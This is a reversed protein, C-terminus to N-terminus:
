RGDRKEFAAVRGDLGADAALERAERRAERAPEDDGNRERAEALDALADVARGVADGEEFLDVATEFRDRAAAPDDRELALEGLASAALGEHYADGTGRALELAEVLREEASGRDGRHLAVRGLLVLCAAKERPRGVDRYRELAERAREGAEDLDGRDLALRGLDLHRTAEGVPDDIERLVALSERFHDAAVDLDGRQRAARGLVTLGDAEGRRDGVTRYRELGPRAYEEAAAPRGRKAEVIGLNTTARAVGHRDGVARYLQLSERYYDAAAGLDGSTEAVVALNNLCDAEDRRTGVDRYITLAERYQREAADSAGVVDHVNGLNHRTTAVGFRDGLERFTSLAERYREEAAEYDGRLWAVNGLRKRGEAANRRDGQERYRRLSERVHEEAADYDGRRHAVTGLELHARAALEGARDAGLGAARDGTEGTRELLAEFEASARDLYGGHLYMTGRRRIAEIRREVPQADPVEVTPADTTGFLPALGPNERGMAFIREVVEETWETPAEAIRDLVPDEGDVARSAASRRDPETALALLAGVCRGFRQAAERQGAASLLESLFLTSWSEHVTRPSGAGDFLVRGTLIERAERVADADDPAVAHLYAPRVALGAANLLNALVGVDLAVEGAAELERHLRRVDGALTTPGPADDAALPAARLSLRHSLLQLEAPAAGEDDADRVEALLEAPEPEVEHGTAVEFREVFREVEREDLPPIPVPRFAEARAPGEGGDFPEGASDAWEGEQADVLVAADGDNLEAAARFVASAGPRVADEVVVLPRGEAARLAEVLLPWSDFPEGAGSERYLVPGYGRDYWRCAVAKCVTSKGAGPPGLVAVNRDERLSALVEEAVPSRGDAGDRGGDAPRQRDVALGADVEALSPGTRWSTSPPAPERRDFYDASLEVFGETRLRIRDGVLLRDGGAPRALGRLDDTVDLADGRLEELLDAAWRAAAPTDNCVFGVPSGDDATATAVVEEESTAYALGFSPVDAEYVRGDGAALGAAISPFQEELLSLFGPAAFTEATVEGAVVRDRLPKLVRPDMGSPPVVVIRDAEDILESVREPLEYRSAEGAHVLECGDLLAPGVAADPPLAELVPAADVVGSSRRAFERYQTALLRGALTTLYGGDGRTVLGAARLEKIARDITSRSLDLEEGLDRKDLPAGALRELLRIRRGVLKLLEFTGEDDSM